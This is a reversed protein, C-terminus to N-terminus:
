FPNVMGFCAEPEPILEQTRKAWLDYVARKDIRKENRALEEFSKTLAKGQNLRGALFFTTPKELPGLGALSNNFIGLFSRCRDGLLHALCITAIM